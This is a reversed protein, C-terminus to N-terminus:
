HYRHLKKEALAKKVWDVIAPKYDYNELDGVDDPDIPGTAGLIEGMATSKIAYVKGNDHQWFGKIVQMSQGKGLRNRGGTLNAGLRM